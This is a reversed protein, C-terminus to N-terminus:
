ILLRKLEGIIREAPARNQEIKETPMLTFKLKRLREVARTANLPTRDAEELFETRYNMVRTWDNRAVYPKYLQLVENLEKEVNARSTTKQQAVNITLSDEGVFRLHTQKLAGKKEEDGEPEGFFDFYAYPNQMERFRVRKEELTMQKLPPEAPDDYVSLSAYPNGLLKLYAKVKEDNAAKPSMTILYYLALSARALQIFKKPVFM